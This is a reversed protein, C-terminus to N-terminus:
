LMFLSFSLCAPLRLATHRKLRTAILGCLARYEITTREPIPQAGWEPRPKKLIMHHVFAQVWIRRECLAQVHDEVFSIPFTLATCAPLLAFGVAWVSLVFGFTPFRM